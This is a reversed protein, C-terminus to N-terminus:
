AVNKKYRLRCAAPRAPPREANAKRGNSTPREEKAAIRRSLHASAVGFSEAYAPQANEAKLERPVGGSAFAKRLLGAM